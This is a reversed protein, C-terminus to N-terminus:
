SGDARPCTPSSRSTRISSTPTPRANARRGPALRDPHHGLVRIFGLDCYMSWEEDDVCSRLLQRARQEARRERGPRYSWSMARASSAGGPGARAAVSLARLTLSGALVIAVLALALLALLM